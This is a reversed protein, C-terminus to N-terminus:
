ATMSEPKRAAVSPRDEEAMAEPADRWLGYMRAHARMAAEAFAFPASALTMYADFITVPNIQEDTMGLEKTSIHNLLVSNITARKSM